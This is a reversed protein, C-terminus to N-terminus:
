SDNILFNFGLKNLFWNNSYAKNQMFNSLHEMCILHHELLYKKFIIDVVDCGKCVYVIPTGRCRSASM